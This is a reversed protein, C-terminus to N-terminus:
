LLIRDVLAGLFRKREILTTHTAVQDVVTVNGVTDDYTTASLIAWDPMSTIREVMAGCYRAHVLKQFPHFAPFDPRALCELSRDVTARCALLSSGQDLAFMVGRDKAGLDAKFNLARDENGIWLDFVALDATEKPYKQALLMMARAHGATQYMGEPLPPADAPCDDPDHRDDATFDYVDLGGEAARIAAFRLRADATSARAPVGVVVPIGLFMALRNAVLEAYVQAQAEAHDYKLVASLQGDEAGTTSRTNPTTAGTIEYCLIPM